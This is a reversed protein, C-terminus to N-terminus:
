STAPIIDKKKKKNSFFFLCTFVLPLTNCFVGWIDVFFFFLDYLSGPPFWLYVVNFRGLYNIFYLM